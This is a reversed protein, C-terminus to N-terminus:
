QSIKEDSQNSEAKDSEENRGNENAEKLKRIEEKLMKMEEVIIKMDKNIIQTFEDHLYALIHIAFAMSKKKFKVM